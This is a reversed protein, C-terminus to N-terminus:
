ENISWVGGSHTSVLGKLLLGNLTSIILTVPLSSKEVLYDIDKLGNVKLLDLLCLETQDFSTASLPIEKKKLSLGYEELIDVVSLIPKAGDKILRNSGASTNTDVPGPTALVDRGNEIALRATILSGSKEAAEVVWIKESLGAIIRNRIPFHYPRPVTSLPFESIICGSSVIKKFLHRNGSPYLHYLGGANIGITKGNLELSMTHAASDIGYAMGSVITLKADILSTFYKKMIRTGYQSHRRSGVIGLTRSKLVSEDGMLYICLPPDYLNILSEPFNESSQFLIRINKNNADEMERGALKLPDFFGPFLDKNAGLTLLQKTNLSFFQNPKINEKIINRRLKLNGCTLMQYALELLEKKDNM